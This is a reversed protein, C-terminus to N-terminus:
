FVLYYKIFYFTNYPLKKDFNFDEVDPHNEPILTKAIKFIKSM